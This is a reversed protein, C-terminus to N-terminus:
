EEEVPTEDNLLGSKEYLAWKWNQRKWVRMEDLDPEYAPAAGPEEIPAIQEEVREPSVVRVPPPAAPPPDVSKKGFGKVRVPDPM